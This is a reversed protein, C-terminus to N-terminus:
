FKKNPDARGAVQNITQSLEFDEDKAEEVAYDSDEEFHESPVKEPKSAAATPAVPATKPKSREEMQQKM